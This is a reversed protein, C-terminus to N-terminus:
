LLNGPQSIRPMIMPDEDSPLEGIPNKCLLLLRDSALQVPCPLQGDSATNIGEGTNEPANRQTGEEAPQLQFNRILTM